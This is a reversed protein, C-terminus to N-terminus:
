DVGLRALLDRMKEESGIGYWAKVVKGKRDIVYNLPVGSGRYKGFYTGTAADSTDLVSPYTIGKNRMLELAIEEKDACNYGLVVLGADKLEEHMKQLYVM